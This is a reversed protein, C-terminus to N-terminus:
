CYIYYIHIKLFKTNAFLMKFHNHLNLKFM